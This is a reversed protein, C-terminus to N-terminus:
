HKIVFNKVYIESVEQPSKGPPEWQNSWVTKFKKSINNPYKELDFILDQSNISFKDLYIIKNKSRNIFNTVNNYSKRSGMDLCITNFKIRKIMLIQLIRLLSYKKFTLKCLLYYNKFNLNVM